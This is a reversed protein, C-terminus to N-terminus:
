VRSNIGMFMFFVTTFSRFSHTMWTDFQLSINLFNKTIKGALVTKTMSEPDYQVNFRDIAERIVDINDKFHILEKRSNEICNLILRNNHPNGIAVISDYNDNTTHNPKLTRQFAGSPGPNPKYYRQNKNVTIPIDIPTPIANSYDIDEGVDSEV